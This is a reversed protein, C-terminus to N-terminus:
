LSEIEEPDLIVSFVLIGETAEIKYIHDIFKVAKTEINGSFIKLQELIKNAEKKKTNGLLEITKQIVTLINTTHKIYKSITKNNSICNCYLNMAIVIKDNDLLYSAYIDDNFRIVGAVEDRNEEKKITAPIKNFNYAQILHELKM